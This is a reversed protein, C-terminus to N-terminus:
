LALRVLNLASASLAYNTIWHWRCNLHSLAMFVGEVLENLVCSM